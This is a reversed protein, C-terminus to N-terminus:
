ETTTPSFLENLIEEINDFEWYPIRLLKIKNEQCYRNKIKDKQQQFEFRDKAKEKSMGGFRTPKYHHEGDYEICMNYDSLYFDFPMVRKIKCDNFCFQEEFKINHNLLYEYIKHEGKSTKCHPCGFGSLINAPKVRWELGCSLCKHLIKTNSTKYNELPRININKDKLEKIYELHTKTQSKANRKIACKPCGHGSLVGRPTIDWIYGCVTCLHTIKTGINVYNGIVKIDPNINHVEKIYQEQTKHVVKACSPCGKGQLSHLPALDWEYNCIKCRHKIKTKANVYKDIVELNPNILQLEYVYEDHTRKIGRM